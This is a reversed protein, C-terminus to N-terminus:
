KSGDGDTLMVKIADVYASYKAAQSPFEAVRKRGKDVLANFAGSDNVLSAIAKAAAKADLPSYYSAADGCIDKAFNLDTTVIPCGSMMAEPYVASFTELISPMFTIDTEAYLAPGDTLPVPGINIVHEAVGLQESLSFLKKEGQGGKELTVRFEFKKNPLLKKLELAVSPIIELNKHKYYASLTLLRIPEAISRTLERNARYSDACSNSVISISDSEVFFRKVMGDRACSAEVVWRDARRYWYRKYMFSMAFKVLDVIGGRTGLAIRSSHTIWGNAVGMLHPVPFDVYAPGFFTFAADANLSEVEALLKKRAPKSRAPSTSFVHGQLPSINIAFRRLERDVEASVLFWWDIGDDAAM